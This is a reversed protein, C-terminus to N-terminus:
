REGEKDRYGERGRETRGNRMMMIAEIDNMM